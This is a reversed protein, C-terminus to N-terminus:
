TNLHVSFSKITFNLGVHQKNISVNHAKHLYVNVSSISIFSFCHCLICSNLIYMYFIHYNNRSISLKILHLVTEKFYSIPRQVKVREHLM